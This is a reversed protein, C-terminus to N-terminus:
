RRILPLYNHQDLPVVLANSMRRAAADNNGEDWEAVQNNRDLRVWVAPVNGPLQTTIVTQSFAATAALPGSWVLTGGREPKDTYIAVSSPPAAIPSRNYVTIRAPTTTASRASLEIDPEEVFLDPWLTWSTAAENDSLDREVTERPGDWQVGVTIAQTGSVTVTPSLITTLTISKGPLVVTANYSDRSAVVTSTIYSRYATASIPGTNSIITELTATGDVGQNHVRAKVALEPVVTYQEVTRDRSSWCACRAQVTLKHPYVTAPVNWPTTVTFATGARLLPLTATYWPTPDSYVRADADVFTVAAGSVPREGVNRVVATITAQTGPTPNPPTVTVDARTLALDSGLSLPHYVLEHGNPDVVLNPVLVVTGSMNVTETVIKTNARDYVFALRGDTLAIQAHREEVGDPAVPLPASWTGTSGSGAAGDGDRLSYLLRPNAHDDLGSWTIALDNDYNMAAHQIAAPQAGGPLQVAQAAGAWGTQIMLQDARLWLLTPTGANAASTDYVLKPATDAVANTTLRQAPQWVGNVLRRAWLETDGVTAVANDADAAWVVAAETPGYAATVAVLGPVTALTESAAWATGDWRAVKIQDATAGFGGILGATNARWVVMGGDEDNGVAQAGYDLVNPSGLNRPAAWTENGVDYTAVMIDGHRLLAPNLAAGPTRNPDDHRLWAVIDTDRTANAVTPQDDAFTDDTIAVAPQYTPGAILNTERNCWYETNRGAFGAGTRTTSLGVSCLLDGSPSVAPASYPYIHSAIIEAEDYTTAPVLGRSTAWLPQATYGAHASIAQPLTAAVPRSAGGELSYKTEASWKDDWLVISANFTVEGAVGRFYPAMVAFNLRAEGKAEAEFQIIEDSGATFVVRPRFGVQGVGKWDM